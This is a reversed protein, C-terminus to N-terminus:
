HFLTLDDRGRGEVDIFIGAEIPYFKFYKWDIFSFVFMLGGGILYKYVSNKQKILTM